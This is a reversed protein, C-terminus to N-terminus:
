PQLQFLIGKTSFEFYLDLVGYYRRCPIRVYYYAVSMFHAYVRRRYAYIDIVWSLSGKVARLSRLVFSM